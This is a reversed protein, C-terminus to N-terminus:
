NITEGVGDNLTDSLHRLDSLNFLVGDNMSPYEVSREMAWPYTGKTEATAHNMIVGDNITKRTNGM